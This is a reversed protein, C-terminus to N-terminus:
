MMRNTYFRAQAEAKAWEAEMQAADPAAKWGNRTITAM